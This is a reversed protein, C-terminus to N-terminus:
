QLARLVIWLVAAVFVVFLVFEVRLRGSPPRQPSM